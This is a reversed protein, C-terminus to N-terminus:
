VRKVEGDLDIIAEKPCYKVCEGCGTCTFAVDRGPIMRIVGSPCQSVCAGCGVCEEAEVRYFGNPEQKIAGVPCTEECTGCKTCAKVEFIGPTPFRPVISIAGCKPNNLGQNALACTLLCVKCGSCRDSHSDLRM